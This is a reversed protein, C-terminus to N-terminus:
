HVVITDSGWPTVTGDARFRDPLNDTVKWSAALRGFGVMVAVRMGLLVIQEETFYERLGAFTHEDISLHDTAMLEAYNLATREAATLDDSEEPRELSCVLGESVGDNVGTEYRIAMCSRCQNFFAVRLRILELLRPPLGDEKAMAGGLSLFARYSRPARAMIGSVDREVQARSDAALAARLDETWEEIPLPEIRAV